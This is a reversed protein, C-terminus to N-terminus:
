FLGFLKPKRKMRDEEAESSDKRERQKREEKKSLRKIPTGDVTREADDPIDKDTDKPFESTGQEQDKKIEEAVDGLSEDTPGPTSGSSGKGGKDSHKNEMIQPGYGGFGSEASGFM